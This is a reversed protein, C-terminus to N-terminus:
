ISNSCLEQMLVLQSATIKDYKEPHRKIYNGNIDMIWATNNDEIYVM